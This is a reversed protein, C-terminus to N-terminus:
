GRGSGRRRAGGAHAGQRADNGPEIDDYVEDEEEVQSNRELEKTIVIRDDELKVYIPRNNKWHQRYVPDERVVGDFWVGYGENGHDFVAEYTSEGLATMVPGRPIQHGGGGQNGGGGGSRGRRRRQNQNGGGGGGGGGKNRQNKNSNGNSM